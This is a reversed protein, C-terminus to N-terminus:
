VAAAYWGRLDVIEEPLGACESPKTDPNPLLLEELLSDSGALVVLAGDYLDPDYEFSICRRVGSPAHPDPPKKGFSAYVLRLHKGVTAAPVDLEPFLEKSAPRAPEPLLGPKLLVHAAVGGFAGIA